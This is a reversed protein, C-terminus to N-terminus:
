APQFTLDDIYQIGTPLYIPLAIREEIRITVLNKPVNDRDERFAEVTVGEREFMEVALGGQFQGVFAEDDAVATNVVTTYRGTLRDYEDIYDGDNDRTLRMDTESRPEIMATSVPFESQRAQLAAVEIHDLRNTTLSTDTFNATNSTNFQSDAAQNLGTLNEGTGDGYLIQSDEEIMLGFMGRSEIHSRLFPIDNLMERHVRFTHAVTRVPADEVTLDFDSEPKLTTGDSAVTSASGDAYNLEQVYRIRDSATQGVSLVDRVHTPRQPDFVVDPVRTPEIVEGDQLFGDAMVAKQRIDKTRVGLEFSASRRRGDAIKEIGSESLKTELEEGIKQADPGPRSHAEKRMEDVEDQLEEVAEKQETFSQKLEEVEPGVQEREKELQDATDQLEDIRQNLKEELTELKDTQDPM